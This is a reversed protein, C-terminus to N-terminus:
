RAKIHIGQQLRFDGELLRCHRCVEFLQLTLQQLGVLLIALEGTLM